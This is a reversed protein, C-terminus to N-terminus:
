AQPCSARTEALHHKLTARPGQEMWQRLTAALTDCLGRSAVFSAPFIGTENIFTDVVHGLDHGAVEWIAAYRVSLPDDVVYNEGTSTRGRTYAIWAALGLMHHPSGDSRDARESITALWRQPIKQSGDMAIQSLRHPLESNAFRKLIAASYTATDLGTASQLSPAAEEEMQLRVLRCLDQDAIAEHVFEFGLASGVYALTSHSGNLLRLKALEFPAVDQVLQAGGSEWHPRPGAFRDEIVWQRFPETVVLAEDRLGTLQEIRGMDDATTAPVIRDVMTGPIAVNEESWARLAPDYLDLFESLLARLLRGNGSLNDCSVLTLADGGNTRRLALADAIYGYITRPGKGRLESAVEEADIMLLGTKPQRYYGKETVTITVVSTAPNSMAAVVAHPDEPAVLVNSIAGVLRLREGGGKELVSYLCDQPKLADRVASSRLSVGTIRWNRDGAEMADETYIAQHARHFAGIGLHVVRRGPGARDHSPRKVWAPLAGASAAGLRV